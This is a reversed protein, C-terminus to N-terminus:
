VIHILVSVPKPHRAGSARGPADHATSTYQAVVPVSSHTGNVQRHGDHNVPAKELNAIRRPENVRDRPYSHCAPDAEDDIQSLYAGATRMAGGASLNM